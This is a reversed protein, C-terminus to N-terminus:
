YGDGVAVLGAWYFPHRYRADRRLELAAARLSEAVEGHGALLSARFRRHFTTTMATASASDLEWLSVVTAPTGAAFFAWSLGVMGEGGGLKGRATDCATLVAVAAELKLSMIEWAELRGDTNADVAGARTLQLYSYMPNMDDVVGHTAFHLITANALAARVRTETAATGVFARSRSAGYIATLTALPHSTAAMGNCAIVPSRGPLHFDRM